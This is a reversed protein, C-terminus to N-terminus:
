LAWRDSRVGRGAVLDCEAVVLGVRPPRSAFMGSTLAFCKPESTSRRPARGRPLKSIGPDVAGLAGLCDACVLKLRQGVSTRSEEVCGRLLSTVLGVEGTVFSTVDESRMNLLKSLECAVMYRVDSNEHNLGDVIDRLQDEAPLSDKDVTHMLLVMLKLVYTSLHSGMMHILM